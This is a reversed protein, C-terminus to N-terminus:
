RVISIGMRELQNGLEALATEVLRQAYDDSRGAATLTVRIDEGADFGKARSKVYVDPHRGQLDRLLDAIASEDRLDLTVTIEAFGGPGLIRDLEPALTHDWIWQLEPPVGPLAVVTTRELELVFAPAAGIQNDLPRAGRPLRSMRRRPETLEPTAVRGAAALEAYRSRVIEEADANPELSHRSGIAIAERTNDDDTPGLGGQTLILTPGREIALRLEDGVSEPDDPMVIVRGLSAGRAAIRKAMWFSNSDQVVGRLLEDGISFIEVTSM